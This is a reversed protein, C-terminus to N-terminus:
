YQRPRARAQLFMLMAATVPARKDAKGGQARRIGKLTNKLRRWSRFEPQRGTVESLIKGIGHRARKSPPFREKHNEM